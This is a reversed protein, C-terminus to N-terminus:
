AKGAWRALGLVDSETMEGPILERLTGSRDLVCTMPIVRRPTFVSRLAGDDLAVDFGYGHQRLYGRVLEAPGDGAAGIVRLRQGQAARALTDVHANHRRCYPCTTEFFVLVLATDRLSEPNVSRGDLLTLAPWHVAEGLAPPRAAAATAAGHLGLNAVGALAGAGALLCLSRRSGAARQRVQSM